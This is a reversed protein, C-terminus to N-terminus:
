DRPSPSTYLLCTNMSCFTTALNLLQNGPDLELDRRASCGELDADFATIVYRVGADMPFGCEGETVTTWVQIEDGSAVVAATPDAPLKIVADVRFLTVTKSFDDFAVVEREDASSSDPCRPTTVEIAEGYIVYQFACLPDGARPTACLCTADTNARGVSALLLGAAVFAFM